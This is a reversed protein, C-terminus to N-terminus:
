SLEVTENDSTLEQITRYFVYRFDFRQDYWFNVAVTLETQSVRHYWMPPLYLVEGAHLEFTMPHAHAFPPYKEIASARDLAPDLPIWRLSSSPCNTDTLRLVPCLQNNNNDVVEYRLTPFQKEPLFAIDTPPLLTFTKTGSIVCYMNEFHDKHCSSVSREDGIWLNVAELGSSSGFAEYAVKYMCLSAENIKVTDKSEKVKNIAPDHWPNPFLIDVLLEPCERRLNDDQQSLYSVCADGDKQELALYFEKLKMRTEAPYVFYEREGTTEDFQLKTVSDARGNPTLNVSVDKEGFPAQIFYEKTWKTLAPWDDIMGRLIAPRNQSVAERLFELSSPKDLVLVSSTDTWFSKTEDSLTTLARDIRNRTTSSTSM